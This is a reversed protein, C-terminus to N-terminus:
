RIPVHYKDTQGWKGIPCEAEADISKATMICMCLGCKDKRKIFHECSKCISMRQQVVDERAFKMNNVIQDVSRQEKDM